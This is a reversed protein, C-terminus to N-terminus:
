NIGRRKSFVYAAAGGIAMVVFLTQLTGMMDGTKIPKRTENIPGPNPTPTPTPEIKEEEKVPKDVVITVDTKTNDETHSGGGSYGGDIGPKSPTTPKSPTAKKAEDYMIITGSKTEGDKVEFTISEAVEYGDPATIETLTYIGDALNEIKHVKDSSTWEEVVKGNKDTLQLKAGPLEKKTTLDQKSIYVYKDEPADYMVISDKVIGDTVKFTISEAIKYGNPATVETLTYTGDAMNKIRHPEETSVWEEVIKGDKDIVQLKAGPLEKKTTIDQKSISVYTDPADYMIIVDKVTGNVVEFTISEAVQYGDPATIETLTYTGDALNKIQHVENASTWEEVVNGDKDTVHLKAGPLEKKTTIDQKSIYIYKDAPKDFMVIESSSVVGDVVTFTISEAIEYGDPATIETLVYTGDELGSIVHKESTSVWEDIVVGDKEVKLKAGPLEEKSTIDQKSITVSPKEPIVPRSIKNIVVLGQVNGIPKYFKLEFDELSSDSTANVKERLVNLYNAAVEQDDVGYIDNLNFSVKDVAEWVMSGTINKAAEESVGTSDLLGYADNPYGAFLIAKVTHRTADDSVAEDYDSLNGVTEPNLKGHNYCYATKGDINFYRTQLGNEEGGYFSFPVSKRVSEALNARNLIDENQFAYPNASTIGSLDTTANNGFAVLRGNDIVSGNVCKYGDFYNVSASLFTYKFIEEGTSSTIKQNDIEFGNPITLTNINANVFAKGDAGTTGEKISYDGTKKQPYSVLTTGQYLAGDYTYLGNGTNNSYFAELNELKNLPKSLNEAFSTGKTSWFKPLKLTRAETLDDLVDENIYYVLYKAPIEKDPGINSADPNDYVTGDPAVADPIVADSASGDYSIVTWPQNDAEKSLTFGNVNVTEAASVPMAMLGGLSSVAMLGAMLGALKSKLNKRM